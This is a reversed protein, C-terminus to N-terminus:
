FPYSEGNDLQLLELSSTVEFLWIRPSSHLTTSQEAEFLEEFYTHEKGKQFRVSIARVHQVINYYNIGTVPVSAM